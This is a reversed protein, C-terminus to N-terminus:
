CKCYYLKVELCWGPHFCLLASAREPRGHWSSHVWQWLTSARSSMLCTYAVTATAAAPQSLVARLVSSSFSWSMPGNQFFYLKSLVWFAFVNGVAAGHVFAVSHFDRAALFPMNSHGQSDKSPHGFPAGECYLSRHALRVVCHVM